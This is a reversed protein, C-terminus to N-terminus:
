VLAEMADIRPQLLRDWSFQKRVDKSGQIGLQKVKDQHDYCYSMIDQAEALNPQFWQMTDDMFYVKKEIQPIDINIMKGSLLFGNNSNVYEPMATCDTTIVTCGHSMAEVITRGLGEGKSLALLVDISNYLKPLVEDSFHDLIIIQPSDPNEKKADAIDTYILEDTVGIGTLAFARVYLVVSDIASFTECFAFVTDRASKRTSWQNIFLFKYRPDNIIQPITEMSDSFDFGFPMCKVNDVGSNKFVETGWKSPNWVEDIRNCREVWDSLINSTEFMTELIMPVTYVKETLIMPTWLNYVIDVPQVQNQLIEQMMPQLSPKYCDPGFWVSPDTLLQLNESYNNYIQNIFSAGVHGYGTFNTVANIVINLSM